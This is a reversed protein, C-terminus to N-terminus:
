KDFSHLEKTEMLFTNFCAVITIYRHLHKSIYAKSLFM